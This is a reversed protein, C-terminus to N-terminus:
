SVSGLCCFAFRVRVRVRFSLILFFLFPIRVGGGRLCWIRRSVDYSAEHFGDRCDQGASWTCAATATARARAKLRFGLGMRQQLSVKMSVKRSTADLSGQLRTWYLGDRVWVMVGNAVALFGTELLEACVEVPHRCGM